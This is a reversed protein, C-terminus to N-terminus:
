PAIHSKTSAPVVALIAVSAGVQFLFRKLAGHAELIEHLFCPPRRFAVSDRSLPHLGRQLLAVKHRVDAVPDLVLGTRALM